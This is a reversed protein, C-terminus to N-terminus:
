TVPTENKEEKNQKNFNTIIKKILLLFKELTMDSKAQNCLVCCPVCNKISYGKSNDIRDIGNHIFKIDGSKPRKAITYHNPKEGCYFCDKGVINLFEERNLNFGLNRKKAVSKCLRYAQNEAAQMGPLMRKLSQTKGSESQLCGCSQTGHLGLHKGNVVHVKGCDCLCKWFAEGLEYRELEIVILKGCRQGIRNKTRNGMKIM